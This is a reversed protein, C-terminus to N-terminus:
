TFKVHIEGLNLLYLQLFKVHFFFMHISGDRSKLLYINKIHM